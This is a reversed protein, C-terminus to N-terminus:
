PQADRDIKIEISVDFKRYDAYEIGYEIIVNGKKESIGYRVSKPMWFEKGAFVVKTYDVAISAPNFKAPVNLMRQELRIVQMSELDLWAKGVDKGVLPTGLNIWFLKNQGEITVFTLVLVQRGQVTEIGAIQYNHLMQNESSFTSVLFSSFGGHINVLEKRQRKDNKSIQNGNISQYERLETAFTTMGKWIHPKQFGRFVSEIIEEKVKGKKNTRQIVTERCEFDPLTDQFAQVNDGVRKLIEDLSPISQSFGASLLLPFFLICVFLWGILTAM